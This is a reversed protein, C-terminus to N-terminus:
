RASKEAHDRFFRADKRPTEAIKFYSKFTSIADFYSDVEMLMIAYLLWAEDNVAHANCFADLKNLHAIFDKQLRYSDLVGANFSKALAVSKIEAADLVAKLERAAADFDANAFAGRLLAQSLGEASEDVQGAQLYRKQALGFKGEAFAADGLKILEDASQTAVPQADGAKTKLRSKLAKVAPSKSGVLLSFTEVQEAAEDDDRQMLILALILRAEFDEAAKAISGRMRPEVQVFIADPLTRVLDPKLDDESKLLSLWMAFEQAANGDESRLLFLAGTYFHYEATGKVRTKLFVLAKAAENPKNSRIYQAVKEFTPAPGFLYSYEDIAAHPTYSQACRAVFADVEDNTKMKKLMEFAYEHLGIVALGVVSTLSADLEKGGQRAKEAALTAAIGEYSWWKSKSPPLVIEFRDLPNTHALLEKFLKEASQIHGNSLMLAALKAKREPNPNQAVAEIMSALAAEFQKNHVADYARLEPRNAKKGTLKLALFDGGSILDCLRLADLGEQTEGGWTLLVGYVFLADASGEKAFKAIREKIKDFRDGYLKRLDPPNDAIGMDAKLARRLARAASEVHGTEMLCQGLLLQAQADDPRLMVVSDLASLAGNKSLQERLNNVTSESSQAIATSCICLLVLAATSGFTRLINTKRAM